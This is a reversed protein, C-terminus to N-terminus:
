WGILFNGVIGIDHMVGMMFSMSELEFVMSCCIMYMEDEYMILANDGLRKQFLM